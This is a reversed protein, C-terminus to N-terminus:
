LRTDGPMDHQMGTEAQLLHAARSADKQVTALDNAAMGKRAMDLAKNVRMHAANDGSSDPLAGQGMGACPNAATADFGDGNPGVLCNIVHHLHTHAKDLTKAGQAMLAHAHAKAIEQQMAGNGGQQMPTDSRMPTSRPPMQQPTTRQPQTRPMSQQPQTQPAPHSPPTQPTTQAMALAPLAAVMLGATSFAWLRKM